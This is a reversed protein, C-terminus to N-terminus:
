VIIEFAKWPEIFDLLIMEEPLLHGVKNIRGDNEINNLIIHLEGKYRGYDENLICIDGRKLTFPTYTKPIYADKYSIRTMTSRAIYESMDGRVFHNQKFLIEKEVDSITDLLVAKMTLKGLHFNSISKLEEESAYCNAIMVDNTLGSAFLHRVQLDLPLKRHMEISCLGENVPWPGFSGEVQSSVFTSISLGLSMIHKSTKEFQKYSLGSYKLPYFNHSTILNSKYPKYSLINDLTKTDSSANIEIKLGEPNLTMMAEKHGDFGEDLRIADVNLSKFFSLDEYTINYKKFVNPTVDIVINYGLEKAADCIAKNANFAEDDAELMNLFLRSFGYKKALKLYEIDKSLNKSVDPYLSIGIRSM